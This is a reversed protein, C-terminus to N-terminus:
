LNPNPEFTELINSLEGKVGVDEVSKVDNSLSTALMTIVYGNKVGARETPIWLRRGWLTVKQGNAANGLSEFKVEFAKRLNNQISIEGQSILKYNGQLAKKLDNNSKKLLQPFEDRDANLTGKSDYFSVLLQEIPLNNQGVNAIDLFNNKAASVKWDQPYYLSFGLFNAAAASSLNDRSNQFYISNPPPSITRPPLSEIKAPLQGANNVTNNVANAVTNNVTMTPEPSAINRTPSPAVPVSVPQRKSSYIWWGLIAALIVIGIIILLKGTNNKVASPSSQKNQVSRKETAALKNATVSETEVVKSKEAIVPVLVQSEDNAASSASASKAAPSKKLDDSEATLNKEAALADFLADGFDRAKPYRESPDFALAKALVTQAAPPLDGTLTAARVKLGARQEKLLEGIQPESFPLTDTLMQFAIVALAFEDSSFNAIKGEVQEPSKYALNKDNLKSKATGFGTLKVQEDGSENLTLIINEPKLQRHLIGNQHIQSLAYSSQRIIETTRRADFRGEKQLHDKVSEGTVYETVVFPKGEPLEGSDIVSVVNPHVFYALSLREEAFIKEDLSDSSEDNMLIRVVVKQEAGNKDEALYDLTDESSDLQKIIRYRDKITQELLFEPNEWTVSSDVKRDGSSTQGDSSEHLNILDTKVDTKNKPDSKHTLIPELELIMESESKPEIVNLSDLELEIENPIEIKATSKASPFINNEPKSTTFSEPTEDSKKIKLDAKAELYNSLSSYSGMEDFRPAAAFEDTAANDPRNLVNTFVEGDSSEASVLRSGDSLCFRQVGDEYTQQCKPCYLM